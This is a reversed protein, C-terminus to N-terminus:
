LGCPVLPVRPVRSAVDPWLWLGCLSCAGCGCHWLPCHAPQGLGLGLPALLSGCVCAVPGPLVILLPDLRAQQSATALPALTAWRGPSCRAALRRWRSARVFSAALGVLAVPILRALSPWTSSCSYTLCVRYSIGRVFCVV